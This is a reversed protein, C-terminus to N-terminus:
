CEAFYLRINDRLNLCAFNIQFLASERLVSTMMDRCRKGHVLTSEYTKRLDVLSLLIDRGKLLLNAHFSQNFIGAYSPSLNRKEEAVSHFKCRQQRRGIQLFRQESEFYRNFFVIEVNQVIGRIKDNLHNTLLCILRLRASFIRVSLASCPFM